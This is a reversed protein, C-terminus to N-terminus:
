LDIAQIHNIDGNSVEKDYDNEIQMIKESSAFVLGFHEVKHELVPNLANQLAINLSGAGMGGRNMPCLVQIDRIPDLGLRLPIRTKVLEIMRAIAVESDEVEVFYFDTKDDTKSLDPLFGQSIKHANTIIRSKAAQRFVDTLHVTPIMQSAIIDSLIKGRGVSALQDSDGVILLAAKDPGAKPTAKLLIVDVM